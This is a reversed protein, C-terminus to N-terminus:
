SGANCADVSSYTCADAQSRFYPTAEEVKKEEEVEITVITPEPLPVAWQCNAEIGLNNVGRVIRFFGQEGWYSGWSNRGHWFNVGNESGYGMVEISHDMSVDGSDDQYIGFTYNQFSAPVAVTCAIPGRASIENM